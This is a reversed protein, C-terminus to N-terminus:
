QTRREIELLRHFLGAIPLGVVNYYDGQIGKIYVGFKGQIGYAGAKDMPEGTDIYQWIQEETMPWVEVLTDEVFASVRDQCERRNQCDQCDQCEIVTVGTYVHHMRGQLSKLMAFAEERNRPKGLIRGDIAVVTDAGVVVDGPQRRGAVDAAKQGSLELVVQEPEQKTIREEIQSPCIEFSIGAQTLLERRRPSASALIVHM